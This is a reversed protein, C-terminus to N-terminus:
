YWGARLKVEKWITEILTKIQDLMVIVVVCIILFLVMFIITLIINKITQSFTYNHTELIGIVLIIGSGWFGIAQFITIVVQENLTLGYSIGVAIPLCIIMPLLSYGTFKYIDKFTGEGDNIASVLYNCLIFVALIIVMAFLVTSPNLQNATLYQFPLAYCYTNLLFAVIALIYYVTAGWVSGMRGNKIEYFTDNPKKILRFGVFLDIFWRKKKITAVKAKFDALKKVKKFAVRLGVINSAVADKLARLRSIRRHSVAPLSCM